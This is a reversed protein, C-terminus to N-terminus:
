VLINLHMFKLKMKRFLSFSNLSQSQFTANLINNVLKKKRKVIDKYAKLNDRKSAVQVPFLHSTFLLQRNFINCEFM